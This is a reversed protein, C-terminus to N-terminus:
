RVRLENYVEVVGKCTRAVEQAAQLSRHDPVEGALRVVGDKVEVDIPGADVTDMRQLASEIGEGIIRDLVSETPIVALRNDIKRVGAIIGVIERARFKKWLQDVAGQLIVEGDVVSVSLDAINVDPAQLLLREVVIRIEDDTPLSVEETPPRVAMRNEVSRVGPIVRADTEAAELAPYSPAAGSLTARGNSVEVELDSADVRNNYEWQRRIDQQIEEDSRQM